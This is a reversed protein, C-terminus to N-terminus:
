EWKSEPLVGMWDDETDDFGRDPTWWVDSHGQWLGESRLTKGTKCGNQGFHDM